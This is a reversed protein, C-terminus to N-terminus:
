RNRAYLEEIHEKIIRKINEMLPKNQGREFRKEVELIMEEKTKSFKREGKVFVYEIEMKKLRNIINETLETNEKLIVVGNENFVPKSIVMGPKLGEVSIKPM